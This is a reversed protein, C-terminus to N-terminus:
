LNNLETIKAACKKNNKTHRKLYLRTVFGQFIYQLFVIVKNNFIRIDVTM